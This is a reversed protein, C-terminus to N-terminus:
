QHCSLDRSQGCNTTELASENETLGLVSGTGKIKKNEQEHNHDLAIMSFANRTKAVVFFCEM